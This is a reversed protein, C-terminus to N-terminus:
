PVVPRPAPLPAVAPELALGIPVVDRPIDFVVPQKTLPDTIGQSAARIMLEGEVLAIAALRRRAHVVEPPAVDWARAWALAEVYGRAVAALAKARGPATADLGAVWRDVLEAERVRAAVSWPKSHFRTPIERLMRAYREVTARDAAARRRRGEGLDARAAADIEILACEAALDALHGREAGQDDNPPEVARLREFVRVTKRCLAAAQPEHRAWRLKAATYAAMVVAGEAGRRGEHAAVFREAEAAAAREDLRPLGISMLRWEMMPVQRADTSLGIFLQHMAAARTRDGAGRHLLTAAYAADARPQREFRRNNAISEFVATASRDDFMLVHTAALANMAQKVFKVREIYKTGAAARPLGARPDGRELRTLLEEAGYERLFLRYMSVADAYAGIQKFAYAGNFAAEPAEDVGPGRELGLRYADAAARWLRDQEPGSSTMQARQFLDFAGQYHGVTRMGCVWRRVCNQDNALEEATAVDGELTAIHLLRRRARAGFDSGACRKPYLKRLHRKAEELQGYLFNFDAIQFTYLDANGDVDAERPVREIYSLRAAVAEEIERPLVEKVVRDRVGEKVLRPQDRKAIGERGRSEEYRRYQLDLALQAIDVEMWAAPQLFTSAASGKAALAALTAARAASRASALEDPSPHGGLRAELRVREHWADAIWYRAEAGDPADKDLQLYRTWERAALGHAGVSRYLLARDDAADGRKAFSSALITRDAACRRLARKVAPHGAGAYAGLRLHMDCARDIAEARASSGDPKAEALADLIEGLREIVLPARRDQPWRALFAEGARIAGEHDGRAERSQVLAEVAAPDSAPADARARLSSSALAAFALVALSRRM